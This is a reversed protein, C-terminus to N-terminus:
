VNEPSDVMMMLIPNPIVPPFEFQIFAVTRYEPENSSSNASTNASAYSTTASTANASAHNHNGRVITYGASDRWRNPGGTYEGFSVYHTHSGSTSHTHSQAAHTHTNAGGTSTASASSPNKYYRGRMDPTGNSGDALKWGVPISALTGLWLAIDGVAPMQSSGSTNKFANLTRYAPQVTETTTLNTSYTAIGQTGAGVTFSHVHNGHLANDGSTRGDDKRYSATYGTNGGTHTHSNTTHTHSISHVNTTSGGTGGANAGTNAGKLFRNASATHFAFGSRSTSASFVMANNPITNYGSSKIFIVTYYPPDNSVSGYTVATGNTTGGSIGGTTYAHTHDYNTIYGGGQSEITGGSASNTNGSTGTHTHNNLTHSHASSTHSHTASGGTSSPNVGNATGKIYKNDLLTERTFGAPIASNLGDFPLIVNPAIM